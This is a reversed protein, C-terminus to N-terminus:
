SVIIKSGSQLPDAVDLQNGKFLSKDKPLELIQFFTGIRFQLLDVQNGKWEEFFILNSVDVDLVKIQKFNVLSRM